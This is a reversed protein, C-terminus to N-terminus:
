QQREQKGDRLLDFMREKYIEMYSVKVTYKYEAERSEIEQFIHALARPMVGRHAYVKTDGVMTFTKGAGTQGYSFITGNLGDLCGMVVSNAYTEYVTNQGANHLVSDYRFRFTNTKNNLGDKSEGHSSDDEAILTIKNNDSDIQINHQTFRATSRFRVVVKVASRSSSM